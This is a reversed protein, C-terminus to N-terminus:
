YDIYGGRARVIVGPRQVRVKVNHWKGDHRSNSPYYGIVYQERLEALIGRFSEELVEVNDVVEIRGGSKDVTERLLDLEYRNGEVNRWSSTYEYIEDNDGSERLHIWYILAQSSSAKRLVEAMSLVSHVDAGDSFLVVVRRGQVSELRTLAMFLHDNISTGGSAEVETLAATLFQKEESFETIRLQRDSFLLVMAQDLEKMGAIFEHAGQLAAQLREGKMSLSCDLLLGVTLPVDGREFTVIEQRKGEDSVRFDERELDLVRESGASVTVYLQQLEIDVSDDVQLTTTVVVATQARGGLDYAVAKFVHEANEDGVDVTARFPPEELIAVEREDVFLEVRAVGEVPAARAVLEVKGLVFDNPRPSEIWVELAVAQGPGAVSALTLLFTILRGKM